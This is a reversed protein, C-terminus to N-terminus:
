FNNLLVMGMGQDWRLLCGNFAMNSSQKAYVIEGKLSCSITHDRTYLSSFDPLFLFILAASIMSLSQYVYAKETGGSGEAWHESFTFRVSLCTDCDGPSSPSVCIAQEWGWHNQNVPESDPELLKWKFQWYTSLDRPGHDM